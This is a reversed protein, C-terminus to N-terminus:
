VETNCCLLNSYLFLELQCYGNALLSIMTKSYKEPHLKPDIIVPYIALGLVAIFGGVLAVSRLTGSSMMM